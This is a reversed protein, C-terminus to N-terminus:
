ASTGETMRRGNKVEIKVLGKDPQGPAADEHLYYITTTKRTDGIRVALDLGVGKFGGTLVFYVKGLDTKQRFEQEILNWALDMRANFQAAERPDWDRDVDVDIAEPLIVTGCRERVFRLVATSLLADESNTKGGLFVIRDQDRFWQGGNQLAMTLLTALEAPLLERYKRTWAVLDFRQEVITKLGTLYEALAESDAANRLTGAAAIAAHRAAEYWNLVPPKAHKRLEDTSTTRYKDLRDKENPDVWCRSSERLSTGVTVFFTTRDTHPDTQQASM